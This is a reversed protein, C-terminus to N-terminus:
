RLGEKASVAPAKPGGMNQEGRGKKERTETERRDERSTAGNKRRQCKHFVSSEARLTRREKLESDFSISAIKRGRGRGKAGYSGRRGDSSRFGHM